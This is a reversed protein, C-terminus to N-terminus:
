VNLLYNLHKNERKIEVQLPNFLKIMHVKGKPIKQKRFKFSKELKIKYSRMPLCLLFINLKICKSNSILRNM